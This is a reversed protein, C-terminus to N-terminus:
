VHARGIKTVELDLAESIAPAEVLPQSNLAVGQVTARQKAAAKRIETLEDIRIKTNSAGAAKAVLVAKSAVHADASATRLGAPPPVFWTVFAVALVTGTSWLKSRDM